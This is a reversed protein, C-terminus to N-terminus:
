PGRPVLAEPQPQLCMHFTPVPLHGNFKLVLHRQFTLRLYAFDLFDAEHLFYDKVIRGLLLVKEQYNVTKFLKYWRAAM